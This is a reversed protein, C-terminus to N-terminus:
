DGTLDALRVLFAAYAILLAFADKGQQVGSVKSVSIKLPHNMYSGGHSPKKDLGQTGGDRQRFSIVARGAARSRCLSETVLYSSSSQLSIKSIFSFKVRLCTKLFPTTKLIPPLM